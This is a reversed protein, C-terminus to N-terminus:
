MEKIHVGYNLSSQEESLIFPGFVDLNPLVYRVYVFNPVDISMGWSIRQLRMTTAQRINFSFRVCWEKTIECFPNFTRMWVLQNDSILTGGEDFVHTNNTSRVRLQSDRASTPNHLLNTSLYSHNNM